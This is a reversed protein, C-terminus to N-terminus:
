VYEKENKSSRRKKAATLHTRALVAQEKRSIRQRRMRHDNSDAADMDEEMHHLNDGDEADPENWMSEDNRPDADVEDYVGRFAQKNRNRDARTRRKKNKALWRRVRRSDGTPIVQANHAAILARYERKALVAKRREEPTLTVQKLQQDRYEPDDVISSLYNTYEDDVSSSKPERRQPPIITSEVSVTQNFASIRSATSETETATTTQKSSQDLPVATQGFKVAKGALLNRRGYAVASTHYCRYAARGLM